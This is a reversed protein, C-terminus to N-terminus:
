VCVCVNDRLLSSDEVGASVLPNKQRGRERPWESEKERESEREREREGAFWRGSMCKQITERERQRERERERESARAREIDGAFM